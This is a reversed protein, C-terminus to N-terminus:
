ATRKLAFGSVFISQLSFTAKKTYLAFFTVLGTFIFSVFLRFFWGSGWRWVKIGYIIGTRQMVWLQACFGVKM